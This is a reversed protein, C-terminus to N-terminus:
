KCTKCFLFGHKCAKRDSTPRSRIAKEKAEAAAVEERTLMTVTPMNCHARIWDALKIGQAQAAAFWARKEELTVRLDIREARM